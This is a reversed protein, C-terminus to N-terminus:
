EKFDDAASAAGIAPRSDDASVLKPKGDPRVVVSSLKAAFNKKGVLREIESLPKLKQVYIDSEDLEPFNTFIANPVAGEDSWKRVSRGAVLKLGPWEKGDAAEATAYEVVSKLWTEFAPAKLVVEAVEDDTLLEPAGFELRAIQMQNEYLKRCRHKVSCFQCWSGPSLEGKGEFALAAVPRLENVAWSKLEDVSITWVSINNIRPQVIALKVQNIDYFTDYLRLAGLAYLMLQRNHEAEVRIGKGYKLDIIELIGDAISIFDGTGFAEPVYETLDLRVEIAAVATDTVTQAAAFEAECFEVYSQVYDLMEEKFLENSMIVELEEDFEGESMGLLDHRLYLEALEHALTGERSYDTSRKEGYKEELRASPPCNLWRSAGSASLLAHARQEHKVQVPM